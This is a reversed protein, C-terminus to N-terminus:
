LTWDDDDPRPMGPISVPDLPRPARHAATQALALDALLREEAFEKTVHDLEFEMTRIAAISVVQSAGAARLARATEEVTAGSAYVDDVILIRQGSVDHPCRFQGGLAGVRASFALSRAPARLEQPSTCRVLPVDRRQAVGAAVRSGFSPVNPDHGPPAAIADVGKLLPHQGVFEALEDVVAGGVHKLNEIDGLPTYLHKTRHVHDALDTLDSVAGDDIKNFWDLAIAFDLSGGCPVTLVGTLLELLTSTDPTPHSGTGSLSFSHAVSSKLTYTPDALRVQAIAGEPGSVSLVHGGPAPDHRYATVYSGGDNCPGQQSLDRIVL